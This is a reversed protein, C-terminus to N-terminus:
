KEFSGFHISYKHKPSFSLLTYPNLDSLTDGCSISINLVLNSLVIVSFDSINVHSLVLM